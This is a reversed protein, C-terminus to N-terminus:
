TLHFILKATQFITIPRPAYALAYKTNTETKANNSENKNPFNFQINCIHLSNNSHNPKLTKEYINLQIASTQFQKKRINKRGSGERRDRRHRQRWWRRRNWTIVELAKAAKLSRVIHLYIGHTKRAPPRDSPPHILYWKRFNFHSSATNFPEQNTRNEYFLHVKSSISLTILPICLHTMSGAAYVTFHQLIPHNLTWQCRNFSILRLKIETSANNCLITARTCGYKLLSFIYWSSWARARVCM